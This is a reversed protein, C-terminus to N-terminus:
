NKRGTKWHKVILFVVAVLILIYILLEVQKM